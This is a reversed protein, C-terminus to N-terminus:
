ASRGYFQIKFENWGNADWLKQWDAQTCGTAPCGFSTPNLKSTITTWNSMEGAGNGPISLTNENGNFSFPRFDRSPFGGEGWTGGMAAGNIYDLVTQFCRGNAPTRNFLGGDNGFDPWLTDTFVLETYALQWLLFNSIRQEGSTRILLDPDPIGDADTDTLDCGALGGIALATALLGVRLRRRHPSSARAAPASFSSAHM